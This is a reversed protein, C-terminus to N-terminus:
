RTGWSQMPSATTQGTNETAPPRGEAREASSKGDKNLNGPLVRGDSERGVNMDTEHNM